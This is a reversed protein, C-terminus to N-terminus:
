KAEKKEYRKINKKVEIPIDETPMKNEISDEFTLFLSTDRGITKNGSNIGKTIIPM